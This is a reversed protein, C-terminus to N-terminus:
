KEKKLKELLQNTFSKAQCIKMKLEKVLNKILFNPFMSALGSQYGYKPSKAINFVKEHLINHYAIRSTSDKFDEYAM